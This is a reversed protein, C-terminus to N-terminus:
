SFIKNWNAVIFAGLLSAVGSLGIWIVGNRTKSKEKWIHFEQCVKENRNVKKVLGGGNNQDYETGVLLNEIGTLKMLVKEQHEKLDNMDIKLQTNSTGSMIEYTNSQSQYEM